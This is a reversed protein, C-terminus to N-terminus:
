AEGAAAPPLAGPRSAQYTGWLAMSFVLENVDWGRCEEQPLPLLLCSHLSTSRSAGPKAATAPWGPTWDRLNVACVHRLWNAPRSGAKAPLCGLLCAPLCHICLLPALSHPSTGQVAGRETGAAAALPAAALSHGAFGHSCPLPIRVTDQIALLPPCWCLSSLHLCQLRRQVHFAEGSLSCLSVQCFPRARCPCARASRWACSSTPM